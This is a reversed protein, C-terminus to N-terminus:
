ITCSSLLLILCWTRKTMSMRNNRVAFLFTFSIEPLLTVTLCPKEIEWLCSRQPSTTIVTRATINEGTVREYDDAHLKLKIVISLCCCYLILQITSFWITNVLKSSKINHIHPWISFLMWAWVVILTFLYVSLITTSAITWARYTMMLLAGCVPSLSWFTSHRQHLMM